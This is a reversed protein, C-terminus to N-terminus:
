SSASVFFPFVDVSRIKTSTELSPISFFTSPTPFSAGNSLHLYFLPFFFPPCGPSLSFFRFIQSNSNGQSCPRQFTKDSSEWQPSGMGGDERPRAQHHGPSILGITLHTRSCQTERERLARYRSIVRTWGWVGKAHTHAEWHCSEHRM